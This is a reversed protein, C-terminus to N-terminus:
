LAEVDELKAKHQDILRMLKAVPAPIKSEGSEYRQAQRLTVGLVKHFTYNARGCGERIRHYETPTM